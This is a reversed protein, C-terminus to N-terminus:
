TPKVNLKQFDVRLRHLEKQREKDAAKLEKQGEELSAVKQETKIVFANIGEFKTEVTKNHAEQRAADAAYQRKREGWIYRILLITIGFLTSVLGLLWNTVTGDNAILLLTDM